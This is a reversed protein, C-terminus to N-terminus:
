WIMFNPQFGIFGHKAGRHDATKSINWRKPNDWEGM